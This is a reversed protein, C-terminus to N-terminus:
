LFKQMCCHDMFYCLYYLIHVVYFEFLRTFVSSSLAQAVTPSLSNWFRLTHSSPIIILMQELMPFLFILVVAHTMTSPPHLLLIDESIYSVGHVFQYMTNAKLQLSRQQLSPTNLHVLM